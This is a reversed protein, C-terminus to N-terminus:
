RSQGLAKAVNVRGGTLVKGQLDPIPDVTDFLVQRVKQYTWDPHFAWLLAAAGAVHPCAMSTGSEAAYANGPITSYVDMGPAALQTTKTGYNSFSALLDSSDTAAVSIINDLAFAAPYSAQSSVDNDLGDNGAAAVFLVGQGGAARIADSLAPSSQDAEGGWSNNLVRAGHQVAYDIAHIADATTGKGDGSIFKLAMISVRQSVGSTGQGNGGVAGITGATHTGHENDDYPLGDGHVFDYGIIDGQASPSPNRWLNYALDEHNYDIGTDIDAVILDKSGRFTKWAETAGIKSLGYSKDLDPDVVPPNIELPEPQLVPRAGDLFPWISASNANNEVPAPRPRPGVPGVPLIHVIYDPQVYLVIKSQRLAGIADQVKVDDKLILQEMGGMLPSFRKVSRVGAYEYLRTMTTRDRVAGDKYKVIVDNSQYDSALAASSLFIGIVVMSKLM